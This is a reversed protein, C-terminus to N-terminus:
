DVFRITGGDLSGIRVLSQVDWGHSELRDRGELAAKEIVFGFGVVTCAAEETIEGLVEATRGGALFDDVILVRVGAPMVRRAIEVRYEVGKTASMVERAFAHRDGPGLYKKAYILPAGFTTACALGPPIGSAEATLILEPRSAEFRGALDDGIASMLHPDVRHNLFGDVMLLPGDIRGEELIKDRLLDAGRTM